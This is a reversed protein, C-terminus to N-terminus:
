VRTYFGLRLDFYLNNTDLASPAAPCSPFGIGAFIIPLASNPYGPSIQVSVNKVTPGKSFLSHM